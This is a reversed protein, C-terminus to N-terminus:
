CSGQGLIALGELDGPGFGIQGVNKQNMLERADKVHALGVLHGLEHMTIARAQATGTPTQLLRAFVESDLIVQGTVFHRGNSGDSLYSSGAYGAVDGALAPAEEPTAWSIIVPPAKGEFGVVQPAKDLPRRQSIGVYEFKLGTAREVRQIAVGLVGESGPPASTLNLEYRITRCPNYTMPAGGVTAIFKHSGSTSVAVEPAVRHRFVHDNVWAEARGSGVETWALGALIVVALVLVVAYPWRRRSPGILSREPARWAVATENRAGRRVSGSCHPCSIGNPTRRVCDACIARGCLTCRAIREVGAHQYCRPLTTPVSTVASTDDDERHRPDDNVSDYGASALTPKPM